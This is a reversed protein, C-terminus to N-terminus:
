AEYLARADELTKRVREKLDPPEIVKATPGFGLIWRVLEPCTRVDMHLIDGEEGGDEWRESHHWSRNVISRAVAKRFWIKVHKPDDPGQIFVGFAKKFHDAPKFGPELEFTEKSRRISMIRTLDFLRISDDEERSLVYLCERRVVLTLPTILHHSTGRDRSRYWIEAKKGNLLCTCIDNLQDDTGSYDRPADPMFWFKRDLDKLHNVNARSAARLKQFLGEMEGQLETGGLFGLLGRGLTLAIVELVGPEIPERFSTPDVRWEKTQGSWREELAAGSEKLAELDRRITRVPRGTMVELVDYSTWGKELTVRIQERRKWAPPVGKPRAM